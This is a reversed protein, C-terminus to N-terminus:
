FKFDSDNIKLILDQLIIQDDYILECNGCDYKNCFYCPTDDM